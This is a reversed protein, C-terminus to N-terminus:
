ASPESFLSQDELLNPQVCELTPNMLHFQFTSQQFFGLTEVQCSVAFHVALIIECDVKM